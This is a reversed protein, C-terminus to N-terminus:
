GADSLPPVAEAGTAGFSTAGGPAAASARLAALEARLAAIEGGLVARMAEMEDRRVLDLEVAMREGGTRFLTRAEEGAATALGMAQESLKAMEEMFPNKTQMPPMYAAAGERALPGGRIARGHGVEGREGAQGGQRVVGPGPRELLRPRQQLVHRGLPQVPRGGGVRELPDRRALRRRHRGVM